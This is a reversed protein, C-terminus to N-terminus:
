FLEFRRELTYDTDQFHVKKIELSYSLWGNDKIRSTTTVNYIINDNLRNQDPEDVNLEQSLKKLYNFWSNALWEKDATQISKMIYNTGTFAIDTLRINTVAPTPSMSFLNDMYSNYEVYNKNKIFEGKGYFLHYQNIDKEFIKAFNEPTSYNKVLENIKELIPTDDLYQNQIKEASKLYNAISHDLNSYRLFRGDTDVIFYFKLNDILYIPNNVFKTSNFKINSYTWSITTEDEFIDEVKIQIDYSIEEQQISEENTYKTEKTTFHYNKVDDVNWFTKVNVISDGESIQAFSIIFTFTFFLFTYFKKM